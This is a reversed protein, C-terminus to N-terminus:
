EEPISHSAPTCLDMAITPDTEIAFEVARPGCRDPVSRTRCGLSKPIGPTRTSNCGGPVHTTPSVSTPFGAAHEKAPGSASFRLPALSSHPAEPAERSTELEAVARIQLYQRFRM